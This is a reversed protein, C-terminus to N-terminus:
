QNESIHKSNDTWLWIENRARQMYCKKKTNNILETYKLRTLLTNYTDIQTSPEDTRQRASYKYLMSRTGRKKENSKEMCAEGIIFVPRWIFFCCWGVQFRLASSAKRQKQIEFFNWALYNLLVIFFIFLAFLFLFLFCRAISASFLSFISFWVLCVLVKTKLCLKTMEMVYYKKQFSFFYLFLLFIKFIVNHLSCFM